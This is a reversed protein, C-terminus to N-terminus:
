EVIVGSVLKVEFTKVVRNAIKISVVVKPPVQKVDRAGKFVIKCFYGESNFEGAAEL